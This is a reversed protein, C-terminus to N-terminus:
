SASHGKVVELLKDALESDILLTDGNLYFSIARSNVVRRDYVDQVVREAWKGKSYMNLSYNCLYDEPEEYDWKITGCTNYNPSIAWMSGNAEVFHDGVNIEGYKENAYQVLSDIFDARTAPSLKSSYVYLKSVESYSLAEYSNFLGFSSINSKDVLRYVRGAKINTSYDARAVAYEVGDWKDKEIFTFGADVSGMLYCGNDAGIKNLESLLRELNKM